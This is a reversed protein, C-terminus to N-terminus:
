STKASKSIEPRKHNWFIRRKEKLTPPKVKTSLSRRIQDIDKARLGQEKLEALAKNAKDWFDHSPPIVTRQADRRPAPTLM